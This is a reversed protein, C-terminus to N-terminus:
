WNTYVLSVGIVHNQYNPSQHGTLIVNNSSTPTANDFAWDSSRLREYWYNFRVAMNKAYRYKAFLQLTHFETKTDPVPTATLSSGPTLAYGTKGDNYVYQFGADYKKGDPQYRGGFGFTNDRNTLKASWDRTPDVSQAALAGGGSYSRSLQDTRFEDLTYFAFASWGATPTWSGDITFAQGKAGTRGLCEAPFTSGPVQQDGPGGCDPGKFDTDYWDVRAGLSVRETVSWNGSARVLDKNYDSVFFHRLTPINDPFPTATTTASTYTAQYPRFLSYDSGRRRDHQYRLAGTFTDSMVRRLEVGFMNNDTDSRLEDIAERYKLRKYEYFGRLLTGRFIQYDGDLAFKHETLGPPINTRLRTSNVSDNAPNQQVTTDGGVYSYLNRPTNNDHDNYHYKAKVTLKALPRSFFNLDLLTNKIEGDLSNRPLPLSTLGANVTYPLFAENQRMISYGLTGTLRTKRDFNWGGTAQIQHFDNSPMLGLRGFGTPFGTGAAWGAIVNYPNQWTLSGADNEYKSYWYSVNLQGQKGLWSLVAEVQKTSDNLEFPLIASRPNGGSNGMVAGILKSGDRDDQRYNVSFKWDKGLFAGGGLRLVDREQKIDFGKLFPNIGAASAPPQGIGTFGAPLTLVSGGLGDHIFRADDFQYRTLQDFGASLFYRGQAGGEIGMQRSPLGLNYGFANVYGPGNGFRKRLNGNGILFGGDKRLGSFEGFKFSDNSNYGAGLELYNDSYPSMDPNPGLPIQAVLQAAAIGPVALALALAAALPKLSFGQTSTNKM